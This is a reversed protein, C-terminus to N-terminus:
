QENIKIVGVKKAFTIPSPEYIEIELISIEDYKELIFRYKDYKKATPNTIMLKYVYGKDAIKKKSSSAPRLAFHQALFIDPTIWMPLKFENANQTLFDTGHYMTITKLEEKLLDILKM